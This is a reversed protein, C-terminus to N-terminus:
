PSSFFGLQAFSLEKRNQYRPSVSMHTHIGGEVCLLWVSLLAQPSGGRFIIVMDESNEYAADVQKPLSPWTSHILTQEPEPM